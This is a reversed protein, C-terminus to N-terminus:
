LNSQPRVSVEASTIHAMGEATQVCLAGQADVGCALGSRGDSLSVAQNHLADRASFANQLPAFGAREFALLTNLVAPAIRLVVSAASADAQLERLGLPQTRLDQATPPAINVGMGVVCYRPSSADAPTPLTTEILIGALKAWGTPADARAVWIDNPWKLRLGLTGQPDLSRALALGVALSLGSWDAPQLMLGLSFTLADGATGHWARGLRGRGATQTEAILVVPDTLGSRARRMLESNTSDIQPLVEVTIGPCSGVMAQWLDEAPWIM